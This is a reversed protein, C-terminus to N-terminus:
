SITDLVSHADLSHLYSEIKKYNKGLAMKFRMQMGQKEKESVRAFKDAEVLAYPYGLFIPDRSNVKLCSLVENINSSDAVEFRFVYKANKNLKVFYIDANHDSTRHSVPYYYWEKLETTRLLNPIISDGKQTLLTCTKALACTNKKLLDELFEKEYPYQAELTGDMLIMGEEVLNAVRLEALRRIIEGIKSPTATVTSIRKDDSDFYLEPFDFENEFLETKFCLKNKQVATILSYFEYRRCTVRKNTIYTTYYIRNFFLSMNPSSFIEASGGDLYTVDQLTSTSLIQHFNQKSIKFVNAGEIMPYDEGERINDLIRKVIKQM